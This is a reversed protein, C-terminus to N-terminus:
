LKMEISFVTKKKVKKGIRLGFSNKSVENETKMENGNM